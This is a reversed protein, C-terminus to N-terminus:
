RSSTTSARPRRTGSCSRRAAASSGTPARSPQPWLDLGELHDCFSALTWTGALPQVTGARQLIEHADGDYTVDEGVGEEGAGRLRIVTSKRTFASSVERELGELAYDDVRLRLGALADFTSM